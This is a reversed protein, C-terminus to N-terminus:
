GRVKKILPKIKNAEKETLTFTNYVDLADQGITHLLVTCQTAEPKKDVGTNLGWHQKWKRRNGAVNGILILIRISKM